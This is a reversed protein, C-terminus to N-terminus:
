PWTVRYFRFPQNTVGGADVFKYSGSGAPSDTAQGLVTWNTLAFSLNTTGRVSFTYNPLNTFTIQFSNGGIPVAGKVIPPAPPPPTTNPTSRVYAFPGGMQAWETFNVSLYIDDSILHVVADQGVMAPPNGGNWAEWNTYTLSAYNTLEGYAWETNTPSIFHVYSSELAANFLGRTNNRTLWVDPTLRDQNSAQTADTGPQTYTILPGNWITASEMQANFAWVSVALAICKCFDVRRSPCTTTKMIRRMDCRKIFSSYSVSLFNGSFKCGNGIM